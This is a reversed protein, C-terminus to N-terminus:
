ILRTVLALLFYGSVSIDTKIHGSELIPILCRRLLHGMQLSPSVKKDARLVVGRRKWAFSTKSGSNSSDLHSCHIM